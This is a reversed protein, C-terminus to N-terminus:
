MSQQETNTGVVSLADFKRVCKRHWSPGSALSVSNKTCYLFHTFLVCCDIYMAGRIGNHISIRKTFHRSFQLLLADNRKMTMMTTADDDDDAHDGNNLTCKTKSKHMDVCLWISAFSFVNWSALSISSSFYFLFLYKTLYEADNLIFHFVWQRWRTFNLMFRNYPRFRIKGM